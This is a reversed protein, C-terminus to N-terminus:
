RNFLLQTGKHSEDFVGENYVLHGNVFTMSVKSTFTQGTFPSWKCKYLINYPVVTWPSNVEIVTIDAYYGERLFG